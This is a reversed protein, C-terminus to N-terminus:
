RDRRDGNGQDEATARRLRQVLDSQLLAEISDRSEINPAQRERRATGAVAPAAPGPADDSASTATANEDTDTDTDTDPRTRPPSPSAAAAPRDLDHHVTVAPSADSRPQRAPTSTVSSRRAQARVLGYDFDTNDLATPTLYIYGILRTGVFRLRQRVRELEEIDSGERVVLVVADTCGAIIATDAVALLPPSDVLTLDHGAALREFGRRFWTERLHDSGDGQAEGATVVALEDADLRYTRVLEGPDQDEDALDLLGAGRVPQLYDTLGRMRVDADILLVDRGHRRGTVALQLATETKGVGPSASTVLVSSAGAERLTLEISSYAFRYAEATRPGLWTREGLPADSAVDYTPLSGLLPVGLAVEPDRDSRVQRSRGALWYAAAGAVAGGLVAALAATRRPTPSVPAGPAEAQEVFEVGSGFLRADVRLQQSLADIEVLRQALVELQGGAAADGDAADDGQGGQQGDIQAIQEEIDEQAAELEVAARDARELQDERVTDQYATAVANAITAAREADGDTVTITLTALEVDGEVTVQESLEDPSTDGGLEEAASTLVPTSGAREQQQPVYRAIDTGAEQGFVGSSEPNTLYLQSSSEYVSPQSQAVFWGGLGAVITVAIVLYRYRWVSELLAPGDAWREAPASM